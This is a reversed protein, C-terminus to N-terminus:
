ICEGTHMLFGPESLLLLSICLRQKMYGEVRFGLGLKVFFVQYPITMYVKFGLDPIM